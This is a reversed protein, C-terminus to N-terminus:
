ALRHSDELKASDRKNQTQKKTQLFLPLLNQMDDGREGENEAFARVTTDDDDHSDCEPPRQRVKGKKVLHVALEFTTTSTENLCCGVPKEVREKV